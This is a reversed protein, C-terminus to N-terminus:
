SCCSSILFRDMRVFLTALAEIDRASRLDALIINFFNQMVTIAHQKKLYEYDIDASLGSLRAAEERALTLGGDYLPKSVIISLRHDKDERIPNDSSPETWRLRGDVDVRFNNRATADLLDVESYQKDLGAQMLEPHTEDILSLAQDLSLPDPLPEIAAALAPVLMGLSLAMLMAKMQGAM